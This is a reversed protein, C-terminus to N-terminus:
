VSNQNIMIMHRDWLPFYNLIAKEGKNIQSEIKEDLKETITKRREKIKQTAAICSVTVVNKEMDINTIIAENSKELAWRTNGKYESLPCVVKFGDLTTTLQNEHIAHFRIIVSYGEEYAKEFDKLSIADELKTTVLSGSNVFHKERIEKVYDEIENNKSIIEM